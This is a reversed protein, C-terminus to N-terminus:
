RASPIFNVEAEQHSGMELELLQLLCDVSVAGAQL